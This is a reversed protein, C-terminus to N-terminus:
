RSRKRWRSPAPKLPPQGGAGELSQRGAAEVQQRGGSPRARCTETLIPRAHTRHSAGGELASRTTQALGSDPGCAAQARTHELPRVAHQLAVCFQRLSCVSLSHARAAAAAPGGGVTVSRGGVEGWSWGWTGERKKDDHKTAGRSGGGTADVMGGPGGSGEAAAAAVGERRVLMDAGATLGNLGSHRRPRTHTTVPPPLPMPRSILRHPLHPLLAAQRRESARRRGGSPLADQTGKRRSEGCM